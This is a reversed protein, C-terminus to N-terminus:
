EYQIISAEPYVDTADFIGDHYIGNNIKRRAVWLYRPSSGMLFTLKDEIKELGNEFIKRHFRKDVLSEKYKKSEFLFLEMQFVHKEDGKSEWSRKLELFAEYIYSFKLRIKPYIPILLKDIRIREYGQNKLDSKWQFFGDEPEVKHYPGVRDDHVYLETIKGNDHRYGSIVATHYDDPPLDRSPLAKRPKWLDLLAIVPLGFNIYAKVIDSIIDDRSPFFFKNEKSIKNPNIFETELGISSFYNKMQFPSLGESPYNRDPFPFVISKDTIEFPSHKETGFLVSLPHLAVWCATTACAGVATDQVQFPLSEIKLPIGFLSVDYWHKLFKRPEHDKEDKYTKLITRGILPDQKSDLIPKKIVFGLYSNIFKSRIAADEDCVAQQIETDNFVEDFFHLRTTFKDISKFSRAYFKSYDILFDKDIYYPESIFGKTKLDGMTLYRYLYKAQESNRLTVSLESIPSFYTM